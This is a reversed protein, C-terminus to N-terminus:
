LCRVIPADHFEIGTNRLHLFWGRPICQIEVPISGATQSYEYM